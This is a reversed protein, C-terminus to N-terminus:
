RAGASDVRQTVLFDKTFTFRASVDGQHSIFLASEVEYRYPVLGEIGVVAHVRTVTQEEM